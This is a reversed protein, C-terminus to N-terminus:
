FSSRIYAAFSFPKFKQHYKEANERGIRNFEESYPRIKKKAEDRSIKGSLYLMKAEFANLQLKKMKETM